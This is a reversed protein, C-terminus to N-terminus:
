ARPPASAFGSWDEEVAAGAACTAAPAGETFPAWQKVAEEVPKAEEAAKAEGGDFISGYRCGGAVGFQPTFGGGMVREGKRVAGAEDAAKEAQQNLIGADMRAWWGKDDPGKLGSPSGVGPSGAAAAEAAVSLVAAPVAVPASAEAAAAAPAAAAAISGAAPPAPVDAAKEEDAWLNQRQGTIATQPVFAVAKTAKTDDLPPENTAAHDMHHWWGESGITGEAAQAPGRLLSTAKPLSGAPSAPDMSRRMSGGSSGARDPMTLGPRTLSGTRQTPSGKKGSLLAEEDKWSLM